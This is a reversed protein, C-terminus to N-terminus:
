TFPKSSGCHKITCLRRVKGEWSRLKDMARNFAGRAQNVRHQASQLKGIARKFVVKKSNVKRKANDIARTAARSSSQLGRQIKRRVIAFFDNKLNGRVRFGARKINGYKATIHLSAQFLHLFKGAIRYEYQTNTIRLMAEAQIGLVSVFGSAHIDVKPRPHATIFVRLFPGRSRDRSSAYMQLLGRAIKLPSLAINMRVGKPVSITVDAHAVLGLINISGKLRYGAPISIGVKPLEKGIPSFSTLFGKPFGSDALPRPLRFRICFGQLLTGMTVRNVKAYYFNNNPSLQDVGIYGSAIIPRRVCSPNGLRVEGGIELAGM